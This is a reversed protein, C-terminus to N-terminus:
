ELTAQGRRGPSHLIQEVPVEFCRALERAIRFRVFRGSEARKITALSVRINRKWCEDALDQQSLLREHRLRRLERDDLAVKGLDLLALALDLAQSVPYPPAASAMSVATAGGHEDVSTGLPFVSDNM